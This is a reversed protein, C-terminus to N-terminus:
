VGVAIILIFTDASLDEVCSLLEIAEDEEMNTLDHAISFHWLLDSMVEDFARPPAADYMSNRRHRLIEKRLDDIQFVQQAAM